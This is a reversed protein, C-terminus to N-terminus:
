EETIQVYKSTIEGMEMRKKKSNMSLNKQM